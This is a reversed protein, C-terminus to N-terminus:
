QYMILDPSPTFALTEAPTMLPVDQRYFHKIGNFEIESNTIVVEYSMWKDEPPGWGDANIVLQVGDIPYINEKDEIMYYNFQHVLLFKPPVGDERAWEVLKRQAYRVKTSNIAGLDIGPQQGPAMMFEPDLAPHVHPYRLYERLRGLENTVTDHGFQLDLILLLDNAATFDIYEQIVAPDTPMIYLGDAGADAQAVSAIVEFALKWPRSNDVAEYEAAQSRLRELLTEKDYEGLIGMLPNGPFGYYSLVRHDPFIAGDMSIAPAPVATPSSAPLQSGDIEHEETVETGDSQAFAAPASAFTLAGAALAARRSFSKQLAVDGREDIL